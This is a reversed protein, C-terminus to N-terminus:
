TEWRVFTQGKHQSIALTFVPGHHVGPHCQECWFDILLGGRRSSPSHSASGPRPGDETVLVARTPADEAARYFVEVNSHHLNDGECVPCKLIHDESLFDDLLPNIM